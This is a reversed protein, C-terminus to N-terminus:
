VQWHRAASAGSVGPPQWSSDPTNDILLM